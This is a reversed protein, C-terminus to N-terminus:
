ARQAPRRARVLARLGLYVLMLALCVNAAAHLPFVGPFVLRAAHVLALAGFAPALWAPGQKAFHLTFAILGAELFILALLYFPTLVIDGYGIEGAALAGLTGSSLVIIMVMALSAAAFAIMVIGVRGARAMGPETRVAFVGGGVAFFAFTAIWGTTVSIGGTALMVLETGALASASLILFVAHIM